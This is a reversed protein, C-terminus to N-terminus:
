ESKVYEVGLEESYRIITGGCQYIGDTLLLPKCNRLLPSKRWGKPTAVSKFHWVVSQRSLSVANKYLLKTQVISQEKELDVALYFNEDLYQMGDNTFLIILTVSESGKRTKAVHSIHVGPKLDAEEIKEMGASNTWEENDPRGVLSYLVTKDECITQSMDSKAQVYREDNYWNM